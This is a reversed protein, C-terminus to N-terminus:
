FEMLSKPLLDIAPGGEAPVVYIRWDRKGRLGAVFAIREGDPSWSPFAAISPPFTLQQRNTGDAKARWLQGDVDSTYAVWEGDKSFAVSTASLERLFPVFQNKERDFRLLENRSQMGVAFLQKGDLSVTPAVYDM